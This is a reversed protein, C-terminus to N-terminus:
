VSTKGTKTLDVLKARSETRRRAALELRLDILENLTADPSQVEGANAKRDVRARAHEGGAQDRGPPRGRGWGLGSYLSEQSRHTSGTYSRDTRHVRAM